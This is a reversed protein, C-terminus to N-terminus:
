CLGLRSRKILCIPLSARVSRHMAFHFLKMARKMQRLFLHGSKAVVDGFRYTVKYLPYKNKEPHRDMLNFLQQSAGQILHRSKDWSTKEIMEDM